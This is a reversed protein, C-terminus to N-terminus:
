DFGAFCAFAAVPAREPTLRNEPADPDARGLSMGCIVSEEPSLALEREIVRYKKTGVFETVFMDQAQTGAHYWGWSWGSVKNKFELVAVRPKASGAARAAPASALLVAFLVFLLSRVRRM